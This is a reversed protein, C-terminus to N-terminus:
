FADSKATTHSAAQLWVGVAGDDTADRTFPAGAPGNDDHADCDPVTVASQAHKVSPTPQGNRASNSM